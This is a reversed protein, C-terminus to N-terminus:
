FLDQRHPALEQRRHVSIKAQLGSEGARMVCSAEDRFRGTFFFLKQSDKAGFENSNM